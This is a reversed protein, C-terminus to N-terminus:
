RCVKSKAEWEKAGDSKPNKNISKNRKFVYALDCNKM